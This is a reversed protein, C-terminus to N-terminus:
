FLGAEALSRWAETGNGIIVHDHVHVDLLRGGEALKRTLTIDERSPAPDGSPHNHALILSVAGLAIADRFVNRPDVLSASVAGTSVVKFGTVHNVANLALIVFHERDADLDAYIPRLFEVAEAPSSARKAAREGVFRVKVPRSHTPGRVIDLIFRHEIVIAGAWEQHDESIHTDLWKQGRGSTARLLYFTGHGHVHLDVAKGM